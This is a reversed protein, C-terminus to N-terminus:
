GVARLLEHRESGGPVYCTEHIRVRLHLPPYGDLILKRRRGASTLLEALHLNQYIPLADPLARQHGLFAVLLGGQPSLRAVAHPPEQTAHPLRHCTEKPLPEEGKSARWRPASTRRWPGPPPIRPTFGGIRKPSPTPPSCRTSRATRSGRACGPPISRAM